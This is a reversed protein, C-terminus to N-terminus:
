DSSLEAENTEENGESESDDRIDWGVRPKDTKTSAPQINIELLSIILLAISHHEIHRLLGDFIKGKRELLLYELLLNKQKALMQQMIKLFYGCLIPLLEEETEVFGTLM